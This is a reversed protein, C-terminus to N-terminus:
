EWGLVLLLQLLAPVRGVIGLCADQAGKGGALAESEGQPVAEADGGGPSHECYGLM